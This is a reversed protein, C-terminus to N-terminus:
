IFLTIIFFLFFTFVFSDLRDLVGGHGPILNSFDKIKATRKVLSFLLDGCQAWITIVLTLLGLFIGPLAPNHNNNMLSQFSVVFPGVQHDPVLYFTLVSVITGIIFAMACGIIAGEWTKKPSVVPALKHKGWLMGGIYSFSDTLIVTGWIWIITMFGYKPALESGSGVVALSINSFGKMGFIVLLGFAALELGKIVSKTAAFAGVVMMLIIYVLLCLLSQWWSFWNAIKWDRYIPFATNTQFFPFVFLGLTMLIVITLYWWEKIGFARTLEYTMAATIIVMIVCFAYNTATLNVNLKWEAAETSLILLVLIVALILLLGLTSLLRIKLNNRQNLNLKNTVIKKKTPPM